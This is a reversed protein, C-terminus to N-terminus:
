FRRYKPRSLHVPQLFNHVALFDRGPTQQILRSPRILPHISLPDVGPTAQFWDASHFGYPSFSPPWGQISLSVVVTDLNGPRLRYQLLPGSELVDIRISM